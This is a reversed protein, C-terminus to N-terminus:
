ANSFPIFKDFIKYSTEDPDSNMFQPSRNISSVVELRPDNESHGKNTEQKDGVSNLSKRPVVGSQVRVKPNLLLEDSKSLVGLTRSETKSFDQFLKETLRGEM